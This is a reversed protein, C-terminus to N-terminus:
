LGPLSVSDIKLSDKLIEGMVADIDKDKLTAEVSQFVFRIGLKHINLKENYFYDFIFSNKLINSDFNILFDILTNIQKQKTVSFSLDRFSSPYESVPQYKVFETVINTEFDKGTKVTKLNELADEYIFVKHDIKSKLNKRSPISIKENVYIGIEEFLDSLYKKDLKKSFDIYNHGKRGSVLVALRKEKILNRKEDLFYIDSIEFIKISDKQRNENYILNDLLSDALNTRLRSKNKDLPNDVVIANELAQGAFPFNVVENFGNKILHSKIIEEYSLSKDFTNSNLIFPSPAINNYGIVRAVEEALDNNNSIDDRYSPILIKKDIKFGLKTLIDKFENDKINTGLIKNVKVLNYDIYKKKIKNYEYKCIKFDKIEAHDDVIQLFRRLVREHNQRDTFREFKYAAESNLNYKLSRGIITEPNFWACELIISKTHKNCATNMGGMVGALNIIKKDSTFVLDEKSIVLDEGLLTQFDKDEANKELTINSKIKKLDYCHTPQGMEYSLYNSIDTFFNIKKINLDNFYEDLYKEYKKPYDSIEVKLFFIQPCQLPEKNIFDLDFTPLTEEFIEFPEEIDYFVNLDRALGSLSLCDGRNPTFEIDFIKNNIEHEHGLQFLRESVDEISPKKPLYRLLHKYSIKM